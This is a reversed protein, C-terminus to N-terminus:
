LMMKNIKVNRAEIIEAKTLSILDLAQRVSLGKSKLWDYLEFRLDEKGELSEYIVFADNLKESSVELVEAIKNLTELSPTNLNNEIQSIFAGSVGVQRGLERQSMNKKKRYFELNNM